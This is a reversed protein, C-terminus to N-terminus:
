WRAATYWSLIATDRDVIYVLTIHLRPRYPTIKATTVNDALSRNHLFSCAWTKALSCDFMGAVCLDTVLYKRPGTTVEHSCFHDAASYLSPPHGPIVLDAFVAVWGGLLRGSHLERCEGANEESGEGNSNRCHSTASIIINKLLSCRCASSSPSTIRPSSIPRQRRNRSTSSASHALYVALHALSSQYCTTLSRHSM